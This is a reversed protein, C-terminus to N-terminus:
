GPFSMKTVSVGAESLDDTLKRVKKAKKNSNLHIGLWPSSYLHVAFEPPSFQLQPLALEPGLNCGPPPNKPGHNKM